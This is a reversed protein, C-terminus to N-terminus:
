EHRSTNGTKTVFYKLGSNKTKGALLLKGILTMIHKQEFVKRKLYTDDFNQM